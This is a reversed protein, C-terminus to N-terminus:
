EGMEKVVKRLADAMWRYRNSDPWGPIHAIEDALTLFGQQWTPPAPSEGAALLSGSRSDKLVAHPAVTQYQEPVEAAPAAPTFLARIKVGISQKDINAQIFPAEVQAQWNWYPPLDRLAVAGIEEDTMGDAPAPCKEKPPTIARLHSALATCETACDELTDASGGNKSWSTTYTRAKSAVAKNSAAWEDAVKAAAEIGAAFGADYDGGTTVSVSAMPTVLTRAYGGLTSFSVSAEAMRAALSRGIEEDTMEPVPLAPKAEMDPMDLVLPELGARIKIHEDPSLRSHRDRLAQATHSRGYNLLWTGVGEHNEGHKNFYLQSFQLLLQEAYQVRDHNSQMEHANLVYAKVLTLKPDTM